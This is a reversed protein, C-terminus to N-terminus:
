EIITTTTEIPADYIAKLEDDTKGERVADPKGSVDIEQRDAYGFNNKGLFIGSVPNIKGNMMYDEWLQNLVAYAKQAVVVQPQGARRAGSVWKYLARRDMGLANALGSVSPKLDNAIVIEFYERIRNDVAVPDNRDIEPLLMIQLAVSTFRSNDGPEMNILEGFSTSTKGRPKSYPKRKEPYNRKREEPSKKPTSM